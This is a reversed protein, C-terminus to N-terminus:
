YTFHLSFCISIFFLILVKPVCDKTLLINASKVDGHLYYSKKPPLLQSDSNNEDTLPPRERHHIYKLGEATGRLVNMRQQESLVKDGIKQLLSGGDIYECVLCPTPGDISYGLIPVINKHRLYSLSKVETNFIKMVTERDLGLLHVYRVKKVALPGFDKHTGVYVDGFGGSGIKGIPGGDKMVLTESFKNTIVELDKYEFRNLKKDDLIARDIIDFIDANSTSSLPYLSMPIFESVENQSSSETTNSTTNDISDTENPISSFQSNIATSEGLMDTINPIYDSNSTAPASQPGTFKIMDSIEKSSVNIKKDIDSFGSLKILDSPEKMQLTTANCLVNDHSSNYLNGSTITNMSELKQEMSEDNLIDTLSTTIPAGPGAVPRVSPPESLNVFIINIIRQM